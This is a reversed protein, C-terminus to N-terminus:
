EAREFELGQECGVGELTQIDTADYKWTRLLFVQKRSVAFAEHAPAARAAPRPRLSPNWSFLMLVPRGDEVGVVTTM